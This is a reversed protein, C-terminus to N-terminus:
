PLEKCLRWQYILLEVTENRIEVSRADWGYRPNPFKRVKGATSVM